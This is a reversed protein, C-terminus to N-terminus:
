FNKGKEGRIVTGVRNVLCHQFLKAFLKTFLIVVPILLPFPSFKSNQHPPTEFKNYRHVAWPTLKGFIGWKGLDSLHLRDLILLHSPVAKLPFFPPVNRIRILHPGLNKHLGVGWPTGKGFLWWKGFDSLHLHNLVLPFQNPIAKLLCHRFLKTFLKTFLTVVTILPSLTFM